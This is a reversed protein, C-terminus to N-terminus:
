TYGDERSLVDQWVAARRALFTELAGDRLTEENAGMLDAGQDELTRVTLETLLVNVLRAGQFVAHTLLRAQGVVDLNPANVDSFMIRAFERSDQPTEDDHRYAMALGVASVFLERGDDREPDNDLDINLKTM